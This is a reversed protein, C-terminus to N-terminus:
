QALEADATQAETTQRELTLDRANHLRAPLRPGRRANKVRHPTRVCSRQGAGCGSHQPESGFRVPLFMIPQSSLRPPRLCERLNEQTCSRVPSSLFVIFRVSGTASKKVRIRLACRAFCWFSSAGAELSLLSIARM